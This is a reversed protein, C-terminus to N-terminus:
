QRTVALRSKVRGEILKVADGAAAPVLFLDWVGDRDINATATAPIDLSIEDTGTDISLFPTLNAIIRGNVETRIEAKAVYGDLQLRIGDRVWAFGQEFRSGQVVVLNIRAPDKLTQAM